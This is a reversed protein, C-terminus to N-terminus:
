GNEVVAAAVGLAGMAMAPKATQLFVKNWYPLMQWSSGEGEVVVVRLAGSVSTPKSM